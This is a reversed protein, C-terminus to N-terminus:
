YLLMYLEQTREIATRLKDTRIDTHYNQTEAYFTDSDEM